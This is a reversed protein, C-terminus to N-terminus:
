IITQTKTLKKKDQARTLFLRLSYKKGYMTAGNNYRSAGRLWKLSVLVEEDNLYKVPINDEHINM